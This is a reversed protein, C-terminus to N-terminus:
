EGPGPIEKEGTIMARVLNVKSRRTDFLVGGLHFAVSIAVWDALASHLDAVWAVGWYRDTTMMYGTVGLAILTAWLNYVMLAGLPNHSLYTEHEGRLLGALYARSARLSPPFASFRAHRPGVFGWGIRLLVLALMAYGVWRHVASDPKLLALDALVLVAVAWHTLRVLGDWVRVHRM